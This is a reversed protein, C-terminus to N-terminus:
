HTKMPTSIGYKWSAYGYDECRRYSPDAAHGPVPAAKREADGSLEARVAALRRVRRVAVAQKETQEHYGRM